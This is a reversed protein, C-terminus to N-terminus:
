LRYQLVVRFYGLVTPLIRMKSKGKRKSGVLVMPVESVVAGQRVLRALLEVMCAFGNEIFLKGNTRRALERLVEPRFVRYFSSFTKVQRIGCGWRIVVNGVESILMRWWPVDAFGGGVTYYSAVCVDSGSNVKEIMMELIGLDSTNDCEMTVVLDGSKASKVAELLGKRFAFGPGGNSRYSVIKLPLKNNFAKIAVVTKDTSGDDVVIVTRIYERWRSRVLSSLWIIIDKEENYAPVVIHLAWNKNKKLLTRM